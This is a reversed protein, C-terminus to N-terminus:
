GRSPHTCASEKQGLRFRLGEVCQAAATLGDGKAVRDAVLLGERFPQVACLFPEPAAPLNRGFCVQGAQDLVVLYLSRAHLDVGAYFRPTAPPQFTHRCAEL